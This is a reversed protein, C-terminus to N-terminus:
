AIRNGNPSFLLGKDGRTGSLDIGPLEMVLSNTFTDLVAIHNGEKLFAIKNGPLVQIRQFGSTANNPHLLRRGTGDIRIAYLDLNTKGHALDRKEFSYYYLTQSDAGWAPTSANKVLLHPNTGDSNVIWLDYLPWGGRGDLTLVTQGSDKAYAFYKGDPSWAMEECDCVGLNTQLTITINEASFPASPGPTGTPLPTPIPPTFTPGPTSTLLFFPTPWVTGTASVQPQLAVAPVPQRRGLFVFAMIIVLAILGIELLTSLKVPFKM